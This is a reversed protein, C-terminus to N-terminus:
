TVLCINTHFVGIYWPIAALVYCHVKTEVLLHFKTFPQYLKVFNPLIVFSVSASVSALGHWTWLVSPAASEHNLAGNFIMQEEKLFGIQVTKALM